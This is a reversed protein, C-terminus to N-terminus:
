RGGQNGGAVQQETTVADVSARAHGMEMDRKTAVLAKVDADDLQNLRLCSQEGHRM